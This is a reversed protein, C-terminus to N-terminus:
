RKQEQDQRRKMGVIGIAAAGLGLLSMPEPVEEPTFKVNIDSRTNNITKEVNDVFLDGTYTFWSSLGHYGNKDNAGQGVQVAYNTGKRALQLESGAYRGSNASLTAGTVAFDYFDWADAASGPGTYYGAGKLSGAFDDLLTFNLNVDWTENANERNVVTGMLNATGDDYVKFMGPTGDFVFSSSSAYGDSYLGNMWIAHRNPAYEMVNYESVLTVAQAPAIMMGNSLAAMGAIAGNLLFRTNMAMLSYFYASNRKVIYATQLSLRMNVTM